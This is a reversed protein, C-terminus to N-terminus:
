QPRIALFEVYDIVSAAFHPIYTQGCKFATAVFRFKGDEAPQNLGPVKPAEAVNSNSSSNSAAASTGDSKTNSSSPSVLSGIIGLVVLVGLVALVGKLVKHSHKKTVQEDGTM